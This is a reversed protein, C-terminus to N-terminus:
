RRAGLLVPVAAEAAERAHYSSRTLPSSEVHSLGMAEGKEKYGAFVDPEV